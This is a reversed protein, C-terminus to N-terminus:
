LLNIWQRNHNQLFLLFLGETIIGNLLSPKSELNIKIDEPHFIISSGFYKSNLQERIYKGTEGELYGFKLSIKEIRYKINKRDLIKEVYASYQPFQKMDYLSRYIDTIENDSVNEPINSDVIQLIHDLAEVILTNKDNQMINTNNQLRFTWYRALGMYGNLLSFNSVPTDFTAKYILDDCEALIDNTNNDIFRNQALYEFGTGIGALGNEYYVPINYNIMYRIEEILQMAYNEYLDNGTFQYYHFFFIVKGMKGYLLGLDNNVTNDIMLNQIIREVPTKASLTHYLLNNIKNLNKQINFFNTRSGNKAKRAYLTRLSENSIMEKLGNYVADDDTDVLIGYKGHALLDTVGSVRTAVIPKGLCLAEGVVLSFGEAFSVSVFVDSARLWPYPNKQFGLLYVADELNFEKILNQVLNHLEGEGIIWFCFDFGDNKLRNLIPILRTYGKIPTLRGISCLTLKEKKKCPIVKLKSKQIINKKNLLNYIVQKKTTVKPFLREFQQMTSHSVFIIRDVMNYCLTEEHIDYYSSGTWHVTYLDSHVWAIKIADTQRLAIFKTSEGELFAVEVDYNKSPLSLADEYIFYKVSDPIDNFYVGVNKLVCLDIDFYEYNIRHLIDILLKEAGGGTLTEICFLVSRKKIKDM